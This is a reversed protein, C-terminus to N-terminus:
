RIYGLERYYRAAGPHLPVDHNAAVTRSDYSYPRIYWILEGRLEDIAKAVDYAAQDPVDDRTFFVSGSRAVTKMDYDLGRLLGWKAVVAKLGMERVLADRQEDPLELFRLDHRQSLDTWYASEPNMAPSAIAGVILDFDDGPPDHSMLLTIKGGRAKITDISLGISELLAVSSPEMDTYVNLPSKKSAADALSVIGSTRKVAVLLYSPDEVRAILRLNKLPGEKAYMYKGHYAYWLMNAEVIGFDVRADLRETTGFATHDKDLPPPYDNRSVVGAGAMKNCNRCILVEYGLPRMADRVYEALEGWPCGHECAGAVVPRRVDFGTRGVSVTKGPPVDPTPAAARALMSVPLLVAALAALLPAHRDARMEGPNKM